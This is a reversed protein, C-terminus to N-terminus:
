PRSGYGASEDELAPDFEAPEHRVPANGAGYTLMAFPARTPEPENLAARLAQNVVDSVTLNREAARYKARRLLEDDLVLTTRVRILM